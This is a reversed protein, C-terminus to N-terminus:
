RAESSHNVRGLDASSSNPPRVPLTSSEQMRMQAVTLLTHHAAIRTLFSQRMAEDSILAARSQLQQCAEHLLAEARRDNYMALAQYCTLYVAFPEEITMLSAQAHFALIKEVYFMVAARTGGQAVTVRVLGALAPISEHPLALTHSLEVAQTYAAAAEGWQGLGDLADGIFKEAIIEMDPQHMQQSQQLGQQAYKLATQHDGQRHAFLALNTVTNPQEEMNGLEQMMQLSKQAYAFAAAYDGVRSVAAGLNSLVYAQQVRNGSQRHAALARKFYQKAMAYDGRLAWVIGLNGLLHDHVHRADIQQALQLAAEAYHNVQDYDALGHHLAALRQLLQVEMATNHHTRGGTLAEGYWVAAEEHKAAALALNGLEFQVEMLTLPAIAPIALTADFQARAAAPNGQHMLVKGWQLRAIAVLTQPHDPALLNIVQQTAAIVAQDEGLFLLLQAHACLLQAYAWTFDQDTRGVMQALTTQAAEVAIAFDASGEIVLGAMRYFNALAMSCQAVAHWQGHAVAWRWAAQVNLLEQRLLGTATQPTAGQLVPEQASALALYYHSHRHAITALLETGAAQFVDTAYQRVLPHMTYRNTQDSYVFSKQTLWHLILPTADAIASAAESTFGGHFLTCRALVDAEEPSLLRWSDDLVVQLSRHRTPVDKLDTTLSAYTVSLAQRIEHCPRYRVQAAALEIALPLGNVLRCIAAIDAYTHQNPRFNNVVRRVREHFLQMSAPMQTRRPMSGVVAPTQATNEEPVPLGRLTFVYEAQLNLPQRSTVLLTLYQAEHLLTLLFPVGAELQEFNDLILLLAKERLYNRLQTALAETPLFAIRLAAGIAAALQETVTATPLIDALAVFWIGDSFQSSLEGPKDLGVTSSPLIEQEVEDGTALRDVLSQAVALALRTKGVGGPGVVTVLPYMPNTIRQQLARLETQRGFLPTLLRTLNTPIGAPTVMQARIQAMQQRTATRRAYLWTRFPQSDISEFGALLEGQHLRQIEAWRAAVPQAHDAALLQELVLADCWFSDTDSQLQVTHHDSKLLDSPALLQRLNSLAVRLSTKASAPPYGDWLLATLHQRPVPQGRQLLLYALLARAKDGRFQILPSDERRLCFPGHLYLKFLPTNM